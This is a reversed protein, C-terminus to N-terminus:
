VSLLEPPPLNLFIPSDKWNGDKSTSLVFPSFWVVPIGVEGVSNDIYSFMANSESPLVIQKGNYELM